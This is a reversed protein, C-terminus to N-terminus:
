TTDKFNSGPMRRSSPSSLDDDRDNHSSWAFFSSGREADLVLVANKDQLAATREAGVLGSHVFAHGLLAERGVPDCANRDAGDVCRQDRAIRGFPSDFPQAFEPIAHRRSQRQDSGCLEVRQPDRKSPDVGRRDDNEANGTEEDRAHRRWEESRLAASLCQADVIIRREPMRELLEDIEVEEVISRAHPEGEARHVDLGSVRDVEVSLSLFDGGSMDHRAARQWRAKRRGHDVTRM